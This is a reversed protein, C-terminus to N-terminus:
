RRRSGHVALRHKPGDKPFKELIGTEAWVDDRNPGMWQPWDDAKALPTVAAVGILAILSLRMM